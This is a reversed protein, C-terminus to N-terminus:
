CTDDPHTLPYTKGCVYLFSRAHNILIRRQPVNSSIEGSWPTIDHHIRVSSKCNHILVEVQYLGNGLGNSTLFTWFQKISITYILYRAELPTSPFSVLYCSGM